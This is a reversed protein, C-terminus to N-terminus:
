LCIPNKSSPMVFSLLVNDRDDDFNGTIIRYIANILNLIGVIKNDAKKTYCKDTQLWAFPVQM